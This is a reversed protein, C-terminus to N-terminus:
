YNSGFPNIKVLLQWPYVIKELIGWIRLGGDILAHVLSSNECDLLRSPDNRGRLLTIILFKTKKVTSLKKKGPRLFLVLHKKIFSFKLFNLIVHRGNKSKIINM